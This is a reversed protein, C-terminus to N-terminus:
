EAPSAFLFYLPSDSLVNPASQGRAFFPDHSFEFFTVSIAVIVAVAAFMLVVFGFVFRFRRSPDNM